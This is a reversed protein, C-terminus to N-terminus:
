EHNSPTGCSAAPRPARPGASRQGPRQGRRLWIQAECCRCFWPAKARGSKNQSPSWGAAGWRLGSGRAADGHRLELTLPSQFPVGDSAHSSLDMAGNADQAGTRQLAVQLRLVATCRPIHATSTGVRQGAQGSGRAQSAKQKPHGGALGHRARTNCRTQGTRQGPPLAYNLTGTEPSAAVRRANRAMPVPGALSADALRRPRASAATPWGVTPTHELLM